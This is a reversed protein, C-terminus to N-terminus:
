KRQECCTIITLRVSKKHKSNSIKMDKKESNVVIKISRVSKKGLLFSHVHLHPLTAAIRSSSSFRFLCNRTNSAAGCTLTRWRQLIDHKQKVDPGEAYLKDM